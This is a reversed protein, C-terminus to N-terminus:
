RRQILGTQIHHLGALCTFLKVYGEKTLHFSLDTTCLRNVTLCQNDHAFVTANLHAQIMVPM